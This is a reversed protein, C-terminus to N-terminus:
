QGNTQAKNQEVLSEEYLKDLEREVMDLIRNFAEKKAPTLKRRKSYMAMIETREFKEDDSLLGLLGLAEVESVVERNAIKNIAKVILIATERAVGMEGSIIRSLSTPHIGAEEAVHKKKLKAEDISKDILLGFENNKAIKNVSKAYYALQNM